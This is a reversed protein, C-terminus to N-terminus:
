RNGYYLRKLYRNASRSTDDRNREHVRAIFNGQQDEFIRQSDEEKYDYVIVNGKADYSQCILWSFIRLKDNPDRIRSADTKGYWITINDRSISRWFVDEPDKTNNWREVRAFLGEIRPRYRKIRYVQGGVTRDPVAEPVWKGAPTQMLTPVLDEAGSLIFVDSELSDQYKALGKDHKRRIGGGWPRGGVG